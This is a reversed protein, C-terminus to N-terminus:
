EEMKAPVFVIAREANVVVGPVGGEDTIWKKFKAITELAKNASPANLVQQELEIRIPKDDVLQTSIEKYSKRAMCIEKLDILDLFWREQDYDVKEEILQCKEALYKVVNVNTLLRSAATRAALDTKVKYNKKYARTANLEPDTRYSNCFGQQQKTLGNKNKAM